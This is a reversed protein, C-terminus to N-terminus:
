ECPFAESLAEGVLGHALLQLKEPHDELWKVVIDRMQRITISLPLCTRHGYIATKEGHVDVIGNLFGACYVGVPESPLGGSTAKCWGYLESGHVPIRSDAFVPLTWALVVLFIIAARM